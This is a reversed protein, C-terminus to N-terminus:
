ECYNFKIQTEKRDEHAIRKIIGFDIDEIKQWEINLNLFGKKEFKQMKLINHLRDQIQTDKAIFFVYGKPINDYDKILENVKQIGNIIKDNNDLGQLEIVYVPVYANEINVFFSVQNCNISFGCLSWNNKYFIQLYKEFKKQLTVLDSKDYICHYLFGILEIGINEIKLDKQLMNRSKINM